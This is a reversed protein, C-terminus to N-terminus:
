PLRQIRGDPLREIAHNIELETFAQAFALASMGLRVAAQDPTIPDWGLAELLGQYSGSEATSEPARSAPEAQGRLIPGNTIRLEQLVDQASEVLKAGQRILEHCGKKVPSDISGPIAFVERGLEAAQRATILSGSKSAAEVVLTGLGLAAILRNRRPFFAPMPATGPAFESIILGHEGLERHLAAVIRPYFLDPGHGVVAITSAPQCLAGRHAAADIGKAMGSVISLGRQALTKAFALAHEEGSQTPHRAGVISLLPRDLAAMQGHAFLVPPPDNLALLAQPYHSDSLTLIHAHRTNRLWHISAQVQPSGHDVSAKLAVALASPIVKSLSGVSHELIDEPPGFAELLTRATVPGVGSCLSLHLWAELEALRAETFAPRDSFTPSPTM